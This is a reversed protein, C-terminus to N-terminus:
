RSMVTIADSHSHRVHVCWMGYMCIYAYHSLIMSAAITCLLASSLGVALTAACCAGALSVDHEASHCPSLVCKACLTGRPSWQDTPTKVGSCYLDHENCLCQWRSISQICVWQAQSHYPYAMLHNLQSEPWIQFPGPGPV